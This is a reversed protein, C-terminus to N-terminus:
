GRGSPTLRVFLLWTLVVLAAGGAVVALPNPRGTLAFALAALGLTAATFVLGRGLGRLLAALEVRATLGVGAARRALHVTLFALPILGFVVPDFPGHGGAAVLVGGLATVLHAVTSSPFVALAGATLLILGWALAEAMTTRGAAVTVLATAALLAAARVAWGPVSPGLDAAVRPRPRESFDPLDRLLPLEAALVALWRRM